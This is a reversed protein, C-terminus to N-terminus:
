TSKWLHEGLRSIVAANCLRKVEDGRRESLYIEVLWDGTDKSCHVPLRRGHRLNASDKPPLHLVMALLVQTPILGDSVPSTLGKNLGIAVCIGCVDGAAGVQVCAQSSFGQLIAGM